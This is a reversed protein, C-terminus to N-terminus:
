LECFDMWMLLRSSSFFVGCIQNRDNGFSYRTKKWIQPLFFFSFFFFSSAFCPFSFLFMQVKSHSSSGRLKVATLLMQLQWSYVSTWASVSDGPPYTPHLPHALVQSRSPQFSAWLCLPARLAQKAHVPFISFSCVATMLQQNCISKIKGRLRFVIRIEAPGWSM